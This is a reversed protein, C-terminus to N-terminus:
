WRCAVELVMNLMGAAMNRDAMNRDHGTLTMFRDISVAAKVRAIFFPTVPIHCVPIYLELLNDQAFSSPVALPPATTAM